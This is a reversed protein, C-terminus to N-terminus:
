DAGVRAPQASKEGKFIPAVYSPTNPKPIGFQPPRMRMIPAEFFRFLLDSILFSMGVAYFVARDRSVLRHQVDIVILQLVSFHVIYLGYARTSLWRIAGAIFRPGSKIQSALPLLLSFSFAPLSFMLPTEPYFYIQNSHLYWNAAILATGALAFPVAFARIADPKRYCLWAAIVGYAIADLRLAVVKRMNEDIAAWGSIDPGLVFRFILPLSIFIGCTILLARRQWFQAVALLIVSFLLYFWEEVALSWSHGFWGGWRTPTIPWALNQTFTLYRLLYHAWEGEPPPLFVLLALIWLFYLPITRMWRRTMFIFWSRFSPERDLIEILLGGILFGSLAFFLEVGFVPLPALASNRGFLLGHVVAFHGLLVMSIAAARIVDLGFIRRHM